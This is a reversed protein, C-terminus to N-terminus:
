NIINGKSDFKIKMLSYSQSSETSIGVIGTGGNVNSPFRVPEYIVENYGDSDFINLAKLYYYETESISLLKVTMTKTFLEEQGSNGPFPTSIFMSATMTYESNKFRSDDFVSYINKAQGFLDSLDDDDVYSPNGDTLVVDEKNIIDYNYETKITEQQASSSEWTDKREIVLRYFNNEDSRDKFTIKFRLYKITQNDFDSNNIITTTDIHTISIPIPVSVQATAHYKGDKTIAEVEIKDEPNFSSIVSYFHNGRGYEANEKYNATEKLVGNIYINVIADKVEASQNSGTLNLYICNESKTADLLANIVLLTNKNKNNFSIENECSTLFIGIISLAYIIYKNM